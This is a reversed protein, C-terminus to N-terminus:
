RMNELVEEAFGTLILCGAFAYIAAQFWGEGPISDIGILPGIHYYLIAVCNWALGEIIARLSRKM